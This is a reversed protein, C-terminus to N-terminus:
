SVVAPAPRSLREALGAAAKDGTRRFALSLLPDILRLPGKLTIEANYTVETGSGMDVFTMTDISTLVSTEARLVVREPAEVEVTEYEFTITRGPADFDVLYRAGPSRPEGAVREARPIGPDWDSVSSFEALYDFTTERDWSTTQTTTYTAMGM